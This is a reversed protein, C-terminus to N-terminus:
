IHSLRVVEFECHFSDGYRGLVAVFSVTIYLCSVRLVQCSKMTCVTIPLDPQLMKKVLLRLRPRCGHVLVDHIHVLWDFFLKRRM